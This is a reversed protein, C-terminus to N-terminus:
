IWPTGEKCHDLYADLVCLATVAEVVPVARPVICPDHRGKVALVANENKDLDVTDQEMYVSSTPKFACRFILPMGTTIGGLIGGHNNSATVVKGEELRFPDNHQSGLMSAAAFGSGFEIGKVAPIGFIAAAIRNEMGEFMSEGLGVPLGTAACEIMGGVSDGAMRAKEIADAMQQGAEQSIVSLFGPQIQDIQPAMPDFPTDAIDAVRQIHAAIRIGKAKLMQLAIGGAICLPATLRGSFHGGGSKDQYGHYKIHAPYDAHGPRPLVKLNAYDGPRADFNRILASLPAGCTKGEYLGSLIEVKDKEQRRTTLSSQGPARRRLFAQLQSVDLAFGPPLGDVVAGIAPSHSQGFVSVHINKGFYSGM